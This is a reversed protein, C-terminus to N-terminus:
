VPKRLVSGLKFMEQTQQQETQTQKRLRGSLGEQAESLREFPDQALRVRTDSNNAATGISSHFEGAIQQTVDKWDAKANEMLFVTVAQPDLQYAETARQIHEATVPNAEGNTEGALHQAYAQIRGQAASGDLEAKVGSAKSAVSVVSLGASIWATVRQADREFNAIAEWGAGIEKNVIALQHACDRNLQNDRTAQQQAELLALGFTASGSGQIGDM